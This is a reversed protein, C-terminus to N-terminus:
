GGQVPIKPVKEYRMRLGHRARFRRQAERNQARRRYADVRRKIPTSMTAYAAVVLSAATGLAVDRVKLGKAEQARYVMSLLDDLTAEPNSFEEAASRLRSVVLEALRAQVAAGIKKQVEDYSIAGRIDLGTKDFVVNGAHGVVDLKVQEVSLLNTLPVGTHEKVIGAAHNSLDHMLVASDMVTSIHIGSRSSLAASFSVDSIPDEPMLQLGTKERAIDCIAKFVDGKLKDWTEAIDDAFVMAAVAVLAGAVGIRAVVAGVVVRIFAAFKVIWAGM